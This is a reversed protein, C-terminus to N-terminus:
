RAIAEVVDVSTARGESLHVRRQVTNHGLDTAVSIEVVYDGDVLRPAHDVIRPAHVDQGYRFTAERAFYGSAASADTEKQVDEAPIPGFYRIQLEKVRAAGSGLVVHVTQDRPLKPSVFFGAM